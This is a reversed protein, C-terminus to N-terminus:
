RNFEQYDIHNSSDEDASLFLQKLYQDNSDMNFTRLLRQIEEWTIRHDSDEDMWRFAKRITGFKTIMKSHFIDHSTNSKNTAKQLKSTSKNLQLSSSQSSQSSSRKLIRKNFSERQLQQKHHGINGSSHTSPLLLEGFTNKFEQYDISGNDDEDATKFLSHITPDNKDLNFTVLLRQMEEWSVRHDNDEDMWRFANHLSKYKSVLKEHLVKLSDISNLSHQAAVNRRNHLGNIKGSNSGRDRRSRCKNKNEIGAHLSNTLSGRKDQTGSRDQITLGHGGTTSPQILEGFYKQFEQYDIAGDGDDDAELFLQHLSEDESNMNFNRLLRQVERWDVTHDNDTDIARFAARLTGYKTTMKEEFMQHSASKKIPKPTPVLSRRSSRRSSRLVAASSPRIRSTSRGTLQLVNRSIKNREAAIAAAAATSKKGAQRREMANILKNKTRNIKEIRTSALNINNLNTKKLIRKSGWQVFTRWHHFTIIDDDGDGGEEAMSLLIGYALRAQGDTYLVKLKQLATLFGDYDVPYGEKANSVNRFIVFSNVDDFSSGSGDSPLTKSLLDLLLQNANM